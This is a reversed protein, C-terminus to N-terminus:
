KVIYAVETTHYGNVTSMHEKLTGLECFEFVLYTYNESEKVELVKVIKPHEVTQLLNM